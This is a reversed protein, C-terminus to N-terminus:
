MAASGPMNRRVSDQLESELVYEMVPHRRPYTIPGSSAM